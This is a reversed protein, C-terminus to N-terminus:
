DEIANLLVGRPPNHGTWIKFSLAAQEILMGLSTTASLGAACAERVLKTERPNYVLDYVAANQPFPLNAPWPSADVDPLMGVPTTNVLLNFNLPQLNDYQTTRIAYYAALERAQDIRRATVTVEWGDNVLAYVVARASGGAGFVLVSKTARHSQPETALFKKLDTMFGSADTNDGTLKGGKLIITNVAGIVKATPTLDDLLPILNQKHPITVNLGHVEGSRVRALLNELGKQDNPLISFLSYDGELGCSDLAAKHIKPSLSHDIPYGILGLQFYM